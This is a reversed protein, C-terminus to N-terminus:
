KEGLKLKGVASNYKIGKSPDTPSHINYLFGFEELRERVDGAAFEEALAIQQVSGALLIWRSGPHLEKEWALKCELNFFAEEM